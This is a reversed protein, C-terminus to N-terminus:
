YPTAANQGGDVSSQQNAASRQNAKEAGGYGNAAQRIATSAAQLNTILKGTYQSVLRAVQKNADGLYVAAQWRDPGFSVATDGEVQPAGSNQLAQVYGDIVAAIDLMKDTNLRQSNPDATTGPWNAQPRVDLSYGGLSAAGNASSDGTLQVRQRSYDYNTM